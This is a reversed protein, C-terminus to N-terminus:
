GVGVLGADLTKLLWQIGVLTKADHVDRAAVLVDLDDRSLEITRIDEAEGAVGGGPAVKGAAIVEVYYLFVRESSGGPSLYFTAIEELAEIEYGVEELVERRLAAEPTEGSETVGAVTEMIWGPGQEYTPYKFQEVFIARRSDRNYIVAAVSDGRELSLRKVPNSMQGDFREFSVEAEDLKFFGDFVRRKAHIVVSRM